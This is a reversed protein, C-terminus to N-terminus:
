DISRCCMIPVALSWIWHEKPARRVENIYEVNESRLNSNELTLKEIGVLIQDYIVKLDDCGQTLPPLMASHLPSSM